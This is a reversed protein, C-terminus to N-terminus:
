TKIYPKKNMVIKNMVTRKIAQKKALLQQTLAIDKEMLEAIGIIKKQEEISPVHIKLQKLENKPISPITGGAGILKLKHQTKESNLFYALYKALIHEENVRLIFFLSSPICTGYSEDYAWAFTRVGKGALIVDNKCLIGKANTNDIDVFSLEFKSPRNLTDFHSALLYKAEGEDKSKGYPGFQINEIDGLKWNVQKNKQLGM